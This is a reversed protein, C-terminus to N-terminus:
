RPYACHPLVANDPFRTHFEFAMPHVKRVDDNEGPAGIGRISSAVAGGKGATDKLQFVAFGYDAYAPIKDWVTRPLRFRRDVRDFDDLTPVYSAIFDGVSEVHITPRAMAAGGGMARMRGRYGVPQPFGHEVDNFFDEYAKFNIFRIGIRKSPAAVPLPLIMAVPQESSYKMSYVLFQTGRGSLRAFINTDSVSRVRGSFICM